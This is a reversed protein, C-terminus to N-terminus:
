CQEAEQSRARLDALWRDVGIFKSFDAALADLYALELMRAQERIVADREALAADAYDQTTLAADYFGMDRNTAVLYERGAVMERGAIREIDDPM